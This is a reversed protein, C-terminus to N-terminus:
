QREASHDPQSSYTKLINGLITLQKGLPNTKRWVLGILRTPRPPRLRVVSVAATKAEVGVAMQPILTVGIGSGVMKVLTSLSSAQMFDGAAPSSIMCFSLAQDRFCHGEELLLLGMERLSAPHPTPKEADARPRVLVFEESFLPFETLSPESLPLAVLAVDQRGELLDKVLIQTMAERLRIDLKPFRDKLVQVVAPLFYPAVTPIVGVRLRGTLDKSDALILADLDDVARLIDHARILFVEGVGTLDLRRANRELLPSGVIDELEKIQISLAPQSIGCSEAARGFHRHATLAVFYRLHRLTLNDM